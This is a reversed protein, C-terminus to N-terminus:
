LFVFNDDFFHTSHKKEYLFKVYLNKLTYQSIDACVSTGLRKEMRFQKNAMFQFGTIFMFCSGIPEILLAWPKEYRFPYPVMVLCLRPQKLLCNDWTNDTFVAMNWCTVYEQMCETDEMFGLVQPGPDAWHGHNWEFPDLQLSVYLKASLVSLDKTSPNSVFISCSYKKTKLFLFQGWFLSLVNGM